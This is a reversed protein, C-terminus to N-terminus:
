KRIDYADGPQINHWMSSNTTEAVHTSKYTTSLYSTQQNFM